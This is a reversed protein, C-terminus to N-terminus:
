QQPEEHQPYEGWESEATFGDGMKNLIDAVIDKAAHDGAWVSAATLIAVVTFAIIILLLSEM